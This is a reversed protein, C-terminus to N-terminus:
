LGTYKSCKTGFNNKGVLFNNQLIKPIADITVVSKRLVTKITKVMGNTVQNNEYHFHRLPDLNENLEVVDEPTFSSNDLDNIGLSFIGLSM